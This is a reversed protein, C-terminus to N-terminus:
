FIPISRSSKRLAPSRMVQMASGETSLGKTRQYASTNTKRQVVSFFLGLLVCRLCFRAGLPRADVRYFPSLVSFSIAVDGDGSMFGNAGICRCSSNRLR